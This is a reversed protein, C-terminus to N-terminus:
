GSRWAVLAIGGLTLAGGVLLNVTLPEGLVLAGSAVAFVPVLFICTSVVTAQGRTLLSFWLLNALGASLFGTFLLSWLADFTLAFRWGELIYAVVLIPLAGYASQLASVWIVDLKAIAAHTTRGWRFLVAAIAWGFAGFLLVGYGQLTTTAGPQIRPLLVVVVGGFGAVVGLLQRPSLREGLFLASLAAVQLPQTYILLSGEGASVTTLGLSLASTLCSVNFLGVAAIFAHAALTPPLPRRLALAVAGLGIAAILSRAGALTLPGVDRLGIRVAVYTFGWILYILVFLLPAAGLAPLRRAARRGGDVRTEDHM